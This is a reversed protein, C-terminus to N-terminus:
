KEEEKFFHTNKLFMFSDVMNKKYKKNEKNTKNEKNQLSLVNWFM